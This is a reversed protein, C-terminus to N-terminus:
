LWSKIKLVIRDIFNLVILLDTRQFLDASSGAATRGRITYKSRFDSARGEQEDIGM